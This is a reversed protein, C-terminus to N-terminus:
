SYCDFDEEFQMVRMLDGEKSHNEVKKKAQSGKRNRNQGVPGLYGNVTYSFSKVTNKYTFIILFYHLILLQDRSM